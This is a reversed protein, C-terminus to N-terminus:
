SAVYHQDIALAKDYYQIAGAYDGLHYLSVGKNNLTAVNHPNIALAKDFYEIAGAYNGLHYLALGKGGLTKFYVKLAAEHQDIALAKNYYIIAGSINYIFIFVFFLGFTFKNM